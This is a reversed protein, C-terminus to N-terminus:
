DDSLRDYWTFKLITSAVLITAACVAVARWERIVFYIPLAVFATQWVIGIVINSADWGFERNPQFSGDRRIAEKRIPGWWGWPRTRVYFNVLEDVNQPKTFLSGVVCGCLSIGLIAPFAQLADIGPMALLALAATIGTIMGWFYGFGNLRWWYWKLINAGAYGGWLGNVIWDVADAVSLIYLGAICGVVVVALSAIYSARIYEPAPAAPRFYRKYVDNVLYAAAANITGSFTSMFAALLGAILFGALGVPVFDRIVIPLVQELDIKNGTIVEGRLFVLALVTIGAVMFYRPVFLVMTVLGSM